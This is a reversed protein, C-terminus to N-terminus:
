NGRQGRLQACGGGLWRAHEEGVELPKNQALFGLDERKRRRGGGDRRGEAHPSQAGIPGRGLTLIKKPQLAASSHGGGQSGPTPTFGGPSSMPAPEAIMRGAGAGPISGAPHQLPTPTGGGAAGWGPLCGSSRCTRPLQKQPLIGLKRCRLAPHTCGSSPCLSPTRRPGRPSTLGQRPLSHPHASSPPPPRTGAPNAAGGAM